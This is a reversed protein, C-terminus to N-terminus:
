MYQTEEETSKQKQRSQTDTSSVHHGAQLLWPLHWVWPVPGRPAACPQRGPLWRATHHLHSCLEAWGSLLGEWDLLPHEPLPPQGSESDLTYGSRGPWPGAWRRKAAPGEPMLFICYVTAQTRGQYPWLGQTDRSQPISSGQGRHLDTITVWAKAAQIGKWM